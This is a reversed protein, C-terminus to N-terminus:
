QLKDKKSGTLDIKRSYKNKEQKNSIFALKLAIFITVLLILYFLQTLGSLRLLLYLLFVSAFLIGQLLSRFIITLLSVIFLFFLIFFLFLISIYQGLIFFTYYPSLTKIIYGLSLGSGITVLLFVWQKQRM